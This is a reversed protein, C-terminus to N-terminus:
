ARQRARKRLLWLPALILVIWWNASTSAACGANGGTTAIGGGVPPQVVATASGAATFSFPTAQTVDDHTFSVDASLPGAQTPAFRISFTTFTGPPITTAFGGLNLAFQGANSGSAVPTGLHLDANGINEVRIVLSQSVAGVRVSGWSRTSGAALIAGYGDRVVLLPTPLITTGTGAIEFTFPMPKTGDSHAIQVTATKMGASSPDFALSFSTSTAPALTGLMGSTNLLFEASNVGSLTVGSIQLSATGANELMITLVATPGASVDRAGFDRGGTAAAGSAIQIAGERVALDPAPAAAVAVRFTFTTATHSDNATIVFTHTLGGVNFVGTHPTRTVPSVGSTNFEAAVFGQTTVNSISTSLTTIVSDPDTASLLINMSALTANYGVNVTAGDTLWAGNVRAAAVPPTSGNLYIIDPMVLDLDGDSDLDAVELARNVDSAAGLDFYSTGLGASGTCLARAPQSLSSPPGDNCYALDLQSDGDLNSFKCGLTVDYWGTFQGSWASFSGNDNVWICSANQSTTVWERGLAIDLDGDADFDGLDLSTNRDVNGFRICRSVFSADYQSFNGQGDNLYLVSQDTGYMCYVAFIIDLDGDNDMDGLAVDRANEQAPTSYGIAFLLSKETFNGTGDNVYVLQNKASIAGNAPVLDLDGDGDIDGAAIGMTPLNSNGLTRTQTFNAQGDNIFLLDLNSADAVAIDLDGDRDFDGLALDSFDMPFPTLPREVSFVGTGDNLYFHSQEGLRVVVADLDGDNDLDGCRVGHSYPHATTTFQRTYTGLIPTKSAVCAAFRWVYGSGPLCAELEEGALFDSTPDFIWSNGSVSVSGALRGRLRSSVVLDQATPTQPTSAFTATVNANLPCSFTNAAPSVAVQAWASGAFTALVTLVILRIM